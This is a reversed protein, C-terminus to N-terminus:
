GPCADPSWRRSAGKVFVGDKILQTGDPTISNLSRMRNNAIEIVVDTMAGNQTGWNPDDNRTRARITTPTVVQASDITLDEELEHYQPRQDYKRWVRGDAGHYYPM